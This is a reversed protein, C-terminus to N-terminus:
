VDICGFLFSMKLKFNSTLVTLLHAKDNRGTIVIYGYTGNRLYLAYGHSVHMNLLSKWLYVEKRYMTMSVHFATSHHLEKSQLTFNLDWSWWKGARHSQALGNLGICGLVKHTLHCYYHNDNYHSPKCFRQTINLFLFLFVCALGFQACLETAQGM